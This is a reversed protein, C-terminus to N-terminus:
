GQPDQFARGWAWGHGRGAPGPSIGRAAPGDLGAIARQLLAVAARYNGALMLQYAQSFPDGAAPPHAARPAPAPIPARAITRDPASAVRQIRTVTRVASHTATGRWLLAGALGALALCLLTALVLPTRSRRRRRRVVMTPRADAAPPITLPLSRPAVVSAGTSAALASVFAACTQFREAPDKALARTLVEDLGAPLKRNRHEASPVPEYVHASAEAAYSDRVYPRAGTLLEFAVIGLAYGDSAATAPRGQAQEPALYGASGLVTGTLTLPDLGSAHAIGFDVVRVRGDDDLLLNAPKIDRHVVGRVHAADLSGAADRLWEVVQPVPQAGRKVIAQELTGGGLYEMVIFPTGQWEGVDFITVTNPLDSLRAATLAERHFRRRVEEDAAFRRALLKVAVPRGLTDDIARYLDGMGGSAVWELHLYRPPCLNQEVRM